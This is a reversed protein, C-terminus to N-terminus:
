RCQLAPKQHRRPDGDAVTRNSLDFLAAHAQALVIEHKKM